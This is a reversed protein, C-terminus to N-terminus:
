LLTTYQKPNTIYQGTSIVYKQQRAFQAYIVRTVSWCIQRQVALHANPVKM